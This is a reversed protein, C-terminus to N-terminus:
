ARCVFSPTCNPRIPYSLNPEQTSIQQNLYNSNPINPTCKKPTESLVGSNLFLLITQQYTKKSHSLKSKHVGLVVFM